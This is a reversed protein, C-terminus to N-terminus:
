GVQPPHPTVIIPAYSIFCKRQAILDKIAKLSYRRGKSIHSRGGKGGFQNVRLSSIIKFVSLQLFVVFIISAANRHKAESPESVCM